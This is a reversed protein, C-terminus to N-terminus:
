EDLSGGAVHVIHLLQAARAPKTACAILIRGGSVQGATKDVDGGIPIQFSVGDTDVGYAPMLDRM